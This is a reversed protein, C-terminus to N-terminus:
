LMLGTLAFDVKRRVNSTTPKYLAYGLDVVPLDNALALQQQLCLSAWVSTVVTTLKFM